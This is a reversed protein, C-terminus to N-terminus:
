IRKSMIEYSLSILLKEYRAQIIVTAVDGNKMMRSGISGSQVANRVNKGERTRSKLSKTLGSSVLLKKKM